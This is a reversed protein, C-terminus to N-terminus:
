LVRLRYIRFVGGPNHQSLDITHTVSRQFPYIPDGVPSWTGGSLGDKSEIQFSQGLYSQRWTFTLMGNEIKANVALQDPRYKALTLKTVEAVFLPPDVVNRRMLIHIKPLNGPTTMPLARPLVALSLEPFEIRFEWGTGGSASLDFGSYGLVGAQNYGAFLPGGPESRWAEWSFLAGLSDLHFDPGELMLWGFRGDPTDKGPHQWYAYNANQGFQDPITPDWAIFGEVLTDIAFGPPNLGSPDNIEIIKAEYNLWEKDAAHSSVGVLLLGLILLGTRHM